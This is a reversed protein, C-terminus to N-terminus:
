TTSVSVLKEGAYRKVLRHHSFRNFADTCGPVIRDHLECVVVKAREFSACESLLEKEAGEVDLKVIGLELNPHSVLIEDLTIGRVVEIVEAPRDAPDEVVTFGWAGKDRDRLEISSVQTPVLAARILNIKPNKETNKELLDFNQQSPEVAVITANPYLDSLKLSATGIYAGADVILGNFDRELFEPLMEYEDGLSSLAVLMDPTNSRLQVSYGRINAKVPASVGIGRLLYLKVASFFGLEASRKLYLRFKGFLLNMDLLDSVRPAPSSAM